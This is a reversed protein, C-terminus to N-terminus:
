RLVEKARERWNDLEWHAPDYWDADKRDYHSLWNAGNKMKVGILAAVEFGIYRLMAWQAKDMNWGYKSHVIDVACGNPHAGNAGKSKSVGKEFLANQEDVTRLMNHAFCPVGLYRLRKIYSKEFDLLLIHANERNARWQQEEYKATNFYNFDQLSRLTARADVPNGNFGVEDM